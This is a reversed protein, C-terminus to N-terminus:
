ETTQVWDWLNKANLFVSICDAEPLAQVVEFDPDTETKPLRVLLGNAPDAIGMERLATRYAANQLHAEAYVRKGTKWDLVTLVGNVEALLDLTGAYGYLESFVVQEILIPRLSVSRAWDKWCAFGWEAKDCAEPAPGIELNLRAKLNWEVLAHTQSGINAAKRVEKQHAMMKGLHLKLKDIWADRSMDLMEYDQLNDFLDASCEIVMEREKRAAWNMLAPKNIVQLISTVSPYRRGTKEYVRGKSTDRRSERGPTADPGDAGIIM